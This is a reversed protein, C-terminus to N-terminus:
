TIALSNGYINQDYGGRNFCTRVLEGDQTEWCGRVDFGDQEAERPDTGPVVDRNDTWTGYGFLAGAGNEALSIWNYDGYFPVSAAGFMEYQMQNGVTSVRVDTGFSRGNTSVAVYSNVVDDGSSTRDATNGVPRQVSYAPDERSDQWLVALRGALADVDPFFQHGRRERTVAYPGTWTRGDDISRYIQVVSRGVLGPVGASFYSSRSETITDPDSAQVAAYVGPLEGTPDSTIRPELPVRAFVYESPCELDNDGCDRTTDFPTYEPLNAIKHPRTWSVGGNPSRTVSIGFNKKSSSLEFDRWLVYVDGDSEVTIDCGQGAFQKSIQIPRSFTLGNDSSHSFYIRSEGFAPFKTWCVYVNGDFRGGTRDVELMEKDAFKGNFNAAAPGRVIQTTRLYDLPYREFLPDDQDRVRYVAVALDSNTKKGAFGNYAIFGFYFRTGIRNFAAVPDSATNTRVFEPSQMGEESTDAPYGPVLSDTWSKGGNTSFGLGMWGSCYDNWGAIVLDINTPDVVSFPENNQTLNGFDAQDTSNCIRITSDSGLDHRVYRQRTVRDDDGGPTPTAASASM